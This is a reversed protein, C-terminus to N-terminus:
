ETYRRIVIIYMAVFLFVILLIAVIGANAGGLMFSFVVIPGALLVAAFAVVFVATPIPKWKM